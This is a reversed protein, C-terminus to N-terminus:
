GPFFKDIPELHVHWRFFFLASYFSQRFSTTLCYAYVSYDLRTVSIAQFAHDKQSGPFYSRNSALKLDDIGPTRARRAHAAEPQIVAMHASSNEVRKFGRPAATWKSGWCAVPHSEPKLFNVQFSRRPSARRTDRGCMGRNCQRNPTKNQKEHQGFFPAVTGLDPYGRALTGVEALRRSAALDEPAM